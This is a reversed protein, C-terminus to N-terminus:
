MFTRPNILWNIIISVKLSVTTVGFNRRCISSAYGRTGNAILANVTRPKRGHRFIVPFIEDEREQVGPVVVTSIKRVNGVFDGKRRRVPFPHQPALFSSCIPDPNRGKRANRIKPNLSSIHL